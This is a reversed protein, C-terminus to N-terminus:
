ATNKKLKNVNAQVVSPGYKENMEQHTDYVSAIIENAPKYTLM